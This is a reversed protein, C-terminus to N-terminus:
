TNSLSRLAGSTQGIIHHHTDFFSDSFAWRVEDSRRAGEVANFGRAM